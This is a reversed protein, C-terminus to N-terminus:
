FNRIARVIGGDACDGRWGFDIYGYWSIVHVFPEETLSELTTTWFTTGFAIEEGAIRLSYNVEDISRLLEYVQGAAPIYWTPFSKRRCVGEYLAQCADPNSPLNYTDFITQCAVKGTTDQFVERDIDSYVDSFSPSNGWCLLDSEGPEVAWGHVGTDDIWFIIGEVTKGSRRYDEPRVITGDTCLIDGIEISDRLDETKLSLILPEPNCFVSDTLVIEAEPVGHVTLALMITSDCINRGTFSRTYSRTGVYRLPPLSFGYNYYSEGRCVTDRYIIRYSPLVKVKLRASEWSCGTFWDVRLTDEMVRNPFLVSLEDGDAEKQGCESLGSWRLREGERFSSIRYRAYREGCVLTDGIIFRTGSVEPEKVHLRLLQHQMCRGNFSVERRYEHVGAVPQRIEFGHGSYDEGACCIDEIVIDAAIVTLMLRIKVEEQRSGCNEPRFCSLTHLGSRTQPPLDFGYRAYSEGACITDYILTDQLPLGEGSSIQGWLTVYCGTVALMECSVEKETGDYTWVSERVTDGNNWCYSEFDAPASLRFEDGECGTLELRSPVCEATFYAYGLHAGYACDYTIFQLQIEQGFYPSLDVGVTTWDRWVLFDYGGRVEHWGEMGGEAYVDYEACEDILRSERDLVRVTFRPQAERPHGPEELVLAFRLLLLPREADVRFRYTLGAAKAGMENDGLRIVRDAGEPLVPLRGETLPDTGQQTIVRHFVSDVGEIYFPDIVNGITATVWPQHIDTFDPVTPCVAPQQAKLLGCVGLLLLCLVNLKKM